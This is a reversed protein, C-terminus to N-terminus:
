CCDRSLGPVPDLDTLHRNLRMPGAAYGAAALLIALAGVLAPTSGSVDLGV